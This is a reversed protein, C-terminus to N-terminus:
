ALRAGGDRDGLLGDGGLFVFDAREDAVVGGADDAAAAEVARSLDRRM